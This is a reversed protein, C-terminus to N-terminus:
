VELGALLREEKSLEWGTEKLLDELVTRLRAVKNKGPPLLEEHREVRTLNCAESWIAPIMARLEDDTFTRM